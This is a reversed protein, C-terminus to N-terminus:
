FKKLFCKFGSGELETKTRAIESADRLPGVLTRYLEQGNVTVPALVVHYGKGKLVDAVVQAQERKVAAVQLFTGVPAAPSAAPKPAEAPPSQPEVAPASASEAPASADSVRGEGPELPQETATQAPPGSPSQTQVPPGAAGPKQAPNDAPRAAAQQAPEAASSSARGVFYGMSFVVGFLVFLVFVISILQKNFGITLDIEREESKSDAV